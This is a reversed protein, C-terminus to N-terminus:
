ESVFSAAALGHAAELHQPSCPSVGCLRLTIHEPLACRDPADWRFTDGVRRFGSVTDFFALCAANRETPKYEAILENM